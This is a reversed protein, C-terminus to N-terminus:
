QFYYQCTGMALPRLPFSLAQIPDNLCIPELSFFIPLLYQGSVKLLDNRLNRIEKELQDSHPRSGQGQVYLSGIILVTFLDYGVYNRRVLWGASLLQPQLTGVGLLLGCHFVM